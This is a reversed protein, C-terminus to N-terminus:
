SLITFTTDQSCSPFHQPHLCDLDSKSFSINDSSPCTHTPVSTPNSPLSPILVSFHAFNRAVESNNRQHLPATNKTITPDKKEENLYEGTRTGPGVSSVNNELSWLCQKAPISSDWQLKNNKLWADFGDKSTKTQEQDIIMFFIHNKMLSIVQSQLIFQCSITAVCSSVIHLAPYLWLLHIMTPSSHLLSIYPTISLSAVLMTSTVLTINWQRSKWDVLLKKPSDIHKKPNDIHKEKLIEMLCTEAKFCGGDMRILPTISGPLSFGADKLM